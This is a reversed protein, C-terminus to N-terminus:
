QGPLNEFFDNKAVDPGVASFYLGFLSNDYISVKEMTYVDKQQSIHLRFAADAMEFATKGSFASLPKRWDMSIQHEPYLHLYMKPIQWVGLKKASQSDYAPDQALLLSKKCIDASAKHAAHGYEGKIDHTVLVDPRYQRILRTIRNALEKENWQKYLNRLILSYHDMMTGMEPYDRVGCLWLGNLLESKRKSHTNAIYVVIVKKKREGAYYPITGGMFLLEDDPHAAVVMLDAKGNMRKWVQVWEPLTGEGLLRIESIALSNNGKGTSSFIRFHNLGPLPVYQHYFEDKPLYVAKWTGSADQTQIEWATLMGGFCIYIGYCPKDEPLTMEVWCEPDGHWYTNYNFDTLWPIQVRRRSAGFTCSSTLEPATSEQAIANVTVLLFLFLFTLIFYKRLKIGSPKTNRFIYLIM